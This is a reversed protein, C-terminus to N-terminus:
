NSWGDDIACSCANHNCVGMITHNGTITVDGDLIISPAKLRIEDPSRVEVSSDNELRVYSDNEFDKLEARFNWFNSDPASLALRVGKNDQPDYTASHIEIDGNPHHRVHGKFSEQNNILKAGQIAWYGEGGTYVDSIMGGPNNRSDFMWYSGCPAHYEGRCPYAKESETETSFIKLYHNGVRSIYDIKKCLECEPSQDGQKCYDFVFAWDRGKGTKGLVPGHFWRFCYPKKLPPYPQKIFDGQQDRFPEQWQSNKNVIDYPTPRCTPYEHWGWASGLVIGQRGGYFFVWVLDGVRPNWNYGGFHGGLLNQLVPLRLRVPNKDDKAARDRMIVDVTNFKRDGSKYHWNVKDVACLELRMYRRIIRIVEDMFRNKLNVM